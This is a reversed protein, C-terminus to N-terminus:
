RRTSSWRWSGSRTRRMRVHDQRGAAGDRGAAGVGTAGACLGRLRGAGAGVRAGATLGDVARESAGVLAKRRVGASDGDAARRGCAAPEGYARRHRRIDPGIAGLIRGSRRGRVSGWGLITARAARESVAGRWRTRASGAAVGTRAPVGSSQSLGPAPGVARGDRFVVSGGGGRDGAGRLARTARATALLVAAVHRGPLAAVGSGADGHVM